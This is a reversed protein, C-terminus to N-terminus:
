GERKARPRRTSKKTIESQKALKRVIEDAAGYTVKKIEKTLVPFEPGPSYLGYTLSQRAHGTLLKATSEPIKAHECHQTFSRRFSHFNLTADEFGNSRLWNGFRKSVYHSRKGDAGGPLLGSILYGDMSTAQLREVMPRIVPHLPVYRISNKNKGEMVRLADDTIHDLKVSAIEDLRMGSYASICALPLMPDGAPLTTVLKKFEEPTYPRPEPSGGRTSERILRTMNRWPNSEVHGSQELWSWFASLNAIIDKKTKPAREGPVLEDTLYRSVVKRTVTSVDVDRKLWTTFDNLHREKAAYGARTISSEVHRLYKAVAESLLMLDGRTLVEHALRIAQEHIESLLPDGSDPDIGHKKAHIALHEEVAADLAVEAQRETISEDTVADRLERAVETVYEISNPSLVKEGVQRAIWSHMEAIARHKRKNAERIDRTKLSRVIESKGLAERQTPPVALRAYWTQGRKKLNTTDV